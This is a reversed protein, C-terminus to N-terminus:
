EQTLGCALMADAIQFDIANDIDVAEIADVTVLRPKDGIRRGTKLFVERRFAYFGSTELYIPVLDQTRPIAAPEYNAPRGETWYFNRVEQVSLASDFEGSRIAEVGEALSNARLFPSTAHALVYIDADVAHVFAALIDNSSTTSSDLDPSRQLFRAGSKEVLPLIQEDSCYVYTASIQNVLRLTALLHNLLPQGDAMLKINKGPLRENNLKIPVLAVAQMAERSVM